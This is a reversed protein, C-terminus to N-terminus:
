HGDGTDEETGPEEGVAAQDRLSALVSERISAAPVLEQLGASLNQVFVDLRSAIEATSVSLTRLQRIITRLQELPQAGPQGVAIALNNASVILQEVILRLAEHGVAHRARLDGLLRQAEIAVRQAPARDPFELDVTELMHELAAIGSFTTVFASDVATLASTSEGAVRDLIQDIRGLDASVETTLRRAERRFAAALARVRKAHLRLQGLLLEASGELLRVRALNPQNRPGLPTAPPMALEAVM